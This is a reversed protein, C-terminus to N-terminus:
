PQPAFAPWIPIPSTFSSRWSAPLLLTMFSMRQSLRKVRKQMEDDPAILETEEDGPEFPIPGSQCQATLNRRPTVGVRDHEASPLQYRLGGPQGTWRMSSATPSGRLVEHPLRAWDATMADRSTV